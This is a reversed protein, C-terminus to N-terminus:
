RRGRAFFLIIFIALSGTLEFGPVSQSETNESTAPTSVNDPSSIDGEVPVDPVPPSDIYGVIEIEDEKAM